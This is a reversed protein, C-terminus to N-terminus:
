EQKGSPERYMLLLLISLICFVAVALYMQRFGISLSSQFSKQLQPKMGEIKSLYDKEAEKFAGPVIKRLEEMKSISDTMVSKQNKMATVAEAIAYRNNAADGEMQSIAADIGYIGKSIGDIGKQLGTQIQEVVQPTNRDYMYVSLEKAKETINTVDSSQLSKLLESPLSNTGGADFKMGNVRDLDPVEVDKLLAAMRPDKKMDEFTKKLEVAQSIVPAAPQPLLGLLEQQAAIGAQAIFGIMISPAIVTGISRVLSLTALASNANEKKTNGLMM